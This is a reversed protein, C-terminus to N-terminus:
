EATEGGNTAPLDDFTARRAESRATLAETSDTRHYMAAQWLAIQDLGEAVTHDRAYDIATKAGWIALPSKEAIESAIELAGTVLSEHDAFLGNVLGVQEARQASLRGGRFAMERVIGDPMVRPLRQLQGVDATIGLNTEGLLFFADTTAYRLDCASILGLGGGVCGGQIAAITPFRASGLATFAQQFLRIGAYTQSRRRGLEPHDGFLGGDALVALDLGATFHKGTSSIVLARTQGDDLQEVLAPLETWFAPLLSNLETPRSLRLHAVSDIRDLEFWTM